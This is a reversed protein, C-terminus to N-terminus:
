SSPTTTTSNAQVPAQLAAARSISSWINAIGMVTVVGGIWYWTPESPRGPIGPRPAMGAREPVAARRAKEGKGLEMILTLGSVIAALGTLISFTIDSGRAWLMAETQGLKGSMNSGVPRTMRRAMMPNERRAPAWSRNQQALKVAPMEGVATPFQVPFGIQNM